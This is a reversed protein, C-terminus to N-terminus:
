PAGSYRDSWPKATEGYVRKGYAVAEYRRKFLHKSCEGEAGVCITEGPIAWYLRWANTMTERMVYLHSPPPNADATTTVVQAM